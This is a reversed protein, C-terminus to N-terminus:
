RNARDSVSVVPIKNEIKDQDRLYDVSASEIEVCSPTAGSKCRRRNGRLAWVSDPVLKSINLIPRFM